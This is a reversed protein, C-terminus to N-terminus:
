GAKGIIPELEAWLPRVLGSVRWGSSWYCLTFAHLAPRFQLLGVFRRWQETAGVDIGDRALMDFCQMVTESLTFREDDTLEGDLAGLFEALRSPDAVDYEWDQM